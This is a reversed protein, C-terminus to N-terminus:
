PKVLKQPAEVEYLVPFPPGAVSSDVPVVRYGAKILDWPMPNVPMAVLFFRPNDTLVKDYAVIHLNSHLSWGSAMLSSTDKGSDRLERDRSLPYVLRQRIRRNAYYSLEMFIHPDAVIIPEANDPLSALAQRALEAEILPPRARVHQLYSMEGSASLVLLLSLLIVGVAALGRAARCLLATLLIAFGPVAWLVYRSLFVHTTHLSLVLVCFPMLALGGCVVWEPWFLTPPPDQDHSTSSFIALVVFPLLCRGLMKLFYGGYFEPIKGWGAPSWPHKQFPASAAILPYHLALVFVVPMMAALMPLDPRGSKRWRLMEAVFLPVLFFISYYHAATMVAVCLAFLPIVLKRRRGAIASQWCLLAAAACGLVLGYSRGETSYELCADCALLAAAMAYSAPLRRRCFALVCLVMGYYGLTSPLRVALAESGALPRIARVILAYLPPAGDAGDMTAKVIEGTSAQQVMHLTVLEDNWMPTRVDKVIAVGLSLLVFLLSWFWFHRELGADIRDSVSLFASRRSSTRALAVQGTCVTASM